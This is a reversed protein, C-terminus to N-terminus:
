ELKLAKLLSNGTDPLGHAQQKRQGRQPTRVTEASLETRPFTKNSGCVSWAEIPATRIWVSVMTTSLKRM